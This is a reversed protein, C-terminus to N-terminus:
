VSVLASSILQLFPDGCPETSLGGGPEGHVGVAPESKRGGGEGPSGERKGGEGLLVRKSPRRQAKAGDMM